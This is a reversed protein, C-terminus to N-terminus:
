TCAHAPLPGVPPQERLWGGGSSSEGEDVDVAIRLRQEAGVYVDEAPDPPELLSLREVSLALASARARPARAHPENISPPKHLCRVCAGGPLRSVRSIGKCPAQKAQLRQQVLGSM